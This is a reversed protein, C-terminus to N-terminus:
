GNPISRPSFIGTTTATERWTSERASWRNGGLEGKRWLEGVSYRALWQSLDAELLRKKVAPTRRLRNLVLGLNSTDEALFDNRLDSPQPSRTPSRQGFSWERYIRIGGFQKGLATM